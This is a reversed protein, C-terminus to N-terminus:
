FNTKKYKDTEDDEILEKALQRALYVSCKYKRIIYAEIEKPNNDPYDRRDRNIILKLARRKTSKM